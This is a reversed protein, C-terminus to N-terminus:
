RIFGPLPRTVLGQDMLWAIADSLADEAPRPALGLVHRAKATDFRVPCGALRVGTLPAQPPTRSVRDSWFEAVHGAMLAVAYPVRSRPMPAGTLRELLRVLDGMTINQGGLIYREGPAAQTRARLIGEAVDDVHVINHVCDLYAPIAGNILDLIMRTPATMAADGPGVPLTPLVASVSFAPGNAGLAAREARLKSLPYPGLMDEDGLATTESVTRVRGHMTKGVLVTLSSVHIFRAAGAAQAADLVRRTGGHNVTEFVTKDGSWLHPNAACHIVTHVGQMAEEVVAKDTISGTVIDIGDPRDPRILDLVRVPGGEDVLRSVVHRGVFGAGGTVLTVM